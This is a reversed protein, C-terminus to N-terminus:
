LEYRLDRTYRSEWTIKDLLSDTNVQSTTLCIQVHTAFGALDRRLENGAIKGQFFNFTKTTRKVKAKRSLDTTLHAQTLSLVSRTISICTVFFANEYRKQFFYFNPSHALIAANTPREYKGDM